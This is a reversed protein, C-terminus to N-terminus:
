NVMSIPGHRIELYWVLTHCGKRCPVSFVQHALWASKAQSWAPATFQVAGSFWCPGGRGGGWGFCRSEPPTSSGWCFPTCKVATGVVQPLLDGQCHGFFGDLWASFMSFWVHLWSLLSIMLWPFCECTANWAGALFWAVWVGMCAVWCDGECNWAIWWFQNWSTSALFGITYRFCVM